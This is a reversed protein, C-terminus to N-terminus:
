LSKFLQTSITCRALLTELQSCARQRSKLGALRVTKQVRRLGPRFAWDLVSAWSPQSSVRSLCSGLTGLYDLDDLAESAWTWPRALAAPYQERRCGPGEWGLLLDTSREVDAASIACSFPLIRCFASIVTTADTGVAKGADLRIAQLVRSSCGM